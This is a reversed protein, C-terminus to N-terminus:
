KLKRIRPFDKRFVYMHIIRVKNRRNEKKCCDLYFATYPTVLFSRNVFRVYGPSSSM